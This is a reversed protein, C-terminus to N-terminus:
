SITRVKFPCFGLAPAAIRTSPPTRAFAQPRSPSVFVLLDERSSLFLFTLILPLGLAVHWPSRAISYSRIPLPPHSHPLARRSGSTPHQSLRYTAICVMHVSMAGLVHGQLSTVLTHPSKLPFFSVRVPLPFSAPSPECLNRKPRPWILPTLFYMYAVCPPVPLPLFQARTAVNSLCQPISLLASPTLHFLSFAYSFHGIFGYLGKRVAISEERQPGVPSRGHTARAIDLQSQPRRSATRAQGQSSPWCLQTTLM